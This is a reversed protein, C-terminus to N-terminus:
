KVRVVSLAFWRDRTGKVGNIDIVCLYPDKSSELIGGSAVIAKDKEWASKKVISGAPYRERCYQFAIFELNLGNEGKSM